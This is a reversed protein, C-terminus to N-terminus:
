KLTVGRVTARHSQHVKIVISKLLVFVSQFGIAAPLTAPSLRM